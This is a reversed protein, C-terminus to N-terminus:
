PKIVAFKVAANNAQVHVTGDPQKWGETGGVFSFLVLDGADLQYATVDQSRGEHDAVSTLTVTYATSAHTNQALLVEHGSLTFKNGNAVDAAVMALDLSNAAPQGSIFPGKPTQTAINTIPM